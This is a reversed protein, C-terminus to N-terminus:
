LQLSSALASGTNEQFYVDKENKMTTSVIWDFSYRVKSNFIPKNIMVRFSVVNM